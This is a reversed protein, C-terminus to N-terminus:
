VTHLVYHSVVAFVVAHLVLGYTTPCGAQAVKFLHASGPVLAGVVGGVLQDVLRYTMPSSVVFFLLGLAAAHQFKKGFMQYIVLFFDKSNPHNVSDM